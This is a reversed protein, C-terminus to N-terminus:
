AFVAWQRLPASPPCHSVLKFNTQRGLAALGQDLSGPPVSVTTLQKASNGDDAYAPTVITAQVGLVALM